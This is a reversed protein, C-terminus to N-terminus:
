SRAGPYRHLVGILEAAHPVAGCRELVELLELVLRALDIKSPQNVADLLELTLATKRNRFNLPGIASRARELLDFLVELERSGRGRPWPRGVAQASAETLSLVWGLAPAAKMLCAGCLPEGQHWGVLDSRSVLTGQCRGCTPRYGQPTRQAFESSARRIRLCPGSRDVLAEDESM